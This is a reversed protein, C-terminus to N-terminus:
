HGQHKCMQKSVNNEKTRDKRKEEQSGKKETKKREATREVYEAGSKQRDCGMIKSQSM